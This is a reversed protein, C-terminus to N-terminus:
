AEWRSMPPRDQLIDNMSWTMRLRTKRGDPPEDAEPQTLYFSGERLKRLVFDATEDTTWADAPKTDPKHEGRAVQAMDFDSMFQKEANEADQQSGGSALVEEKKKRAQQDRSGKANLM